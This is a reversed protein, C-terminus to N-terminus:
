HRDRGDGGRATEYSGGRLYVRDNGGKGNLGRDIANTGYMKDPGGTGKCYKYTVKCHILNSALAVGPLAITLAILAM